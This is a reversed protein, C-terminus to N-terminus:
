AIAILDALAEDYAETIMRKLDAPDEPIWEVNMAGIREVAALRKALSAAEREEEIKRGIWNSLSEGREHLRADLFCRDEESVRVEIRATKRVVMTTNYPM